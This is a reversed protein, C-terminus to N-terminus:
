STKIGNPNVILKSGDKFIFTTEENNWDQNVNSAQDEAKSMMDAYDWANRHISNAITM